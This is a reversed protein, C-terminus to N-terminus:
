EGAQKVRKGKSRDETLNKKFKMNQNLSETVRDMIPMGKLQEFIQNSATSFVRGTSKGGDVSIEMLLSTAFGSGAANLLNAIHAAQKDSVAGMQKIEAALDQMSVGVFGAQGEEVWKSIRTVQTKEEKSDGAGQLIANTSIPYYDPDDGHITFTQFRALIADPVNSSSKTSNQGRQTKRLELKQFQDSLESRFLTMKDAPSISSDSSLEMWSQGFGQTWFRPSAQGWLDRQEDMRLFMRCVAPYLGDRELKALYRQHHEFEMYVRFVSIREMVASDMSRRSSYATDEPNTTGIIYVGVPMGKYVGMPLEVSGIQRFTLAARLQNAQGMNGTFIEDILWPIVVKKKGDVELIHNGAEVLSWAPIIKELVGQLVKGNGDDDKELRTLALFEEMQQGGLGPCIVPELGLDRCAQVTIESKGCGAEGECVLAKQSAAGYKLFAGLRATWMRMSISRITGAEGVSSSNAVLNEELSFARLM